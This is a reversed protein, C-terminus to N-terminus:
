VGVSTYTQIVQREPISGSTAILPTCHKFSIDVQFSVEVFKNFQLPPIEEASLTITIVSEKLWNMYHCVSHVPLCTFPQLNAMADWMKTEQTEKTSYQHM